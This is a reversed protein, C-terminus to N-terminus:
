IKADTLILRALNFTFTTLKPKHAKKKEGVHIEQWRHFICPRNKATDRSTSARESLRRMCRRPKSISELIIEESHSILKPVGFPEEAPTALLDRYM